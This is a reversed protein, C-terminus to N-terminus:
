RRTTIARPTRSAASALAIACCKVSMIPVNDPTLIYHAPTEDRAGFVNEFLLQVDPDRLGYGVLLATRTLLLAELVELAQAGHLRLRSYDTRSLVIEDVKDVTGHILPLGSRPPLRGTPLSEKGVPLEM